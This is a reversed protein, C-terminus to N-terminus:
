AFMFLPFHRSFPLLRAWGLTQLLIKDGLGLCLSKPGMLQLTATAATEALEQWLLPCTSFKVVSCLQLFFSRRPPPILVMLGLVPHPPYALEGLEWGYQTTEGFRAKDASGLWGKLMDQVDKQMPTMKRSTAPQTAVAPLFPGTYEPHELQATANIHIMKQCTNQNQPIKGDAFLVSGWELSPFYQFHESQWDFPFWSQLLILVALRADIKDWVVHLCVRPWPSLRVRARPLELSLM